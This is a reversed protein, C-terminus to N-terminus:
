ESETTNGEKEVSITRAQIRGRALKISLDDGPQLQDNAKVLTMDAQKYVLAYGRAMVQLPSLANLQAALSQLVHQGHTLRTRLNRQLAQILDDLRQGLPELVRRPQQLVTAGALRDLKFRAQHLREQLITRLSYHLHRLKEGVAKRDAVVMEAAATPTEARVDAAFDALTYDIEHGVASIVPIDSAAIARVVMEENFAWLDELSGGGRGCIIVDWAKEENLRALAHAIAQAAATGQVPVSYIDVAALPSRRGIVNLIDHVAAGTASTVVAIREPYRPLSKKRQSDFLGERALRQKLQELALQLAGLGAPEMTEVVMQFDGRAPYLSLRGMANIKLGDEVSFRVLRNSGRFMACRLQSTEDKLTFYWHGSTHQKLNSIEGQIWLHSFTQELLEKAQQVAESVTFIIHDDHTIM